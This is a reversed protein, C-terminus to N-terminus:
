QGAFVGGEYSDGHESAKGKDPFRAVEFCESKLRKRGDKNISQLSPKVVREFPSVAISHM